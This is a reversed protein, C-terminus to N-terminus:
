EQKGKLRNEIENLIYEAAHISKLISSYLVRMLYPIQEKKLTESEKFILINKPIICEKEMKEFLEEMYKPTVEEVITDSSLEKLSNPFSICNNIMWLGDEEVKTSVNLVVGSNMNLGKILEVMDERTEVNVNLKLNIIDDYFSNVCIYFMALEYEDKVVFNITKVPINYYKEINNVSM